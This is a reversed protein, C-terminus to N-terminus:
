TGVCLGVVDVDPIISCRCGSDGLSLTNLSHTTALIHGHRRQTVELEFILASDFPGGRLVFRELPVIVFVIHHRRLEGFRFCVCSRMFASGSYSCAHQDQEPIHAHQKVQTEYHWFGTTVEECGAVFCHGRFFWARTTQPCKCSIM